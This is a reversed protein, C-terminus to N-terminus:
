LCHIVMASVHRFLISVNLLETLTEMQDYDIM